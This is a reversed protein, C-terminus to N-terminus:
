KQIEALVSDFVFTEVREVAEEGLHQFAFGVRANGVLSKV